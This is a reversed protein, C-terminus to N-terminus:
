TGMVIQNPHKAVQDSFYLSCVSSHTSNCQVDFMKGDILDTNLSSMDPYGLGKYDITSANTV